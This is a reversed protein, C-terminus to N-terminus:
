SSQSTTRSEAEMWQPPAAARAPRHVRHTVILQRMGECFCDYPLGLYDPTFHAFEDVYTKAMVLDGPTGIFAVADDPTTGEIAGLVFDKLAGGEYGMLMYSDM